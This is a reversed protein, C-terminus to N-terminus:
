DRESLFIASAKGVVVVVKRAVLLIGFAKGFHLIGVSLVVVSVVIPVVDAVFPIPVVVRAPVSLNSAVTDVEVGFIRGYGVIEYTTITLEDSHADITEADVSTTMDRAESEVVCEDRLELSKGFLVLSFTTTAVEKHKALYAGAFAIDDIAVVFVAGREIICPLLRFGVSPVM